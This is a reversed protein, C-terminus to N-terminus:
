LRITEDIRVKAAVALKFDFEAKEGPEGRLFRFTGYQKGEDKELLIEFKPSFPVFPVPNLIENDISIRQESKDFDISAIIEGANTVNINLASIDISSFKIESLIVTVSELFKFLDDSEGTRGFLDNDDDDSLGPLDKFDLKVYESAPDSSMIRIELPLLIVLDATVTSDLDEHQDQHLILEPIKIEYALEIDSPDKFIEALNIYGDGLSHEPMASEFPVDASPFVPRGVDNLPLDIIETNGTKLPVGNTSLSIVPPAASNGFGGVFIYGKVSPFEINDGLFDSLSNGINITYTDSLLNDTSTDITASYWDFVLEITMEGSVPKTLQVFIDLNGGTFDNKPEITIDSRTFELMASNDGPVGQIYDNIGFAPIKVRISEEFGFGNNMRLGFKSGTGGMTKVLSVMDLLPIRILPIDPDDPQPMGNGDLYVPFGSQPISLIAGPLTFSTRVDAGTMADSVYDQLNLKMEVIPYHVLYALVDPDVGDINSPTRYEYVRIGGEGTNMMKRIEDPSIMDTLNNEDTFPSGLFLYFEPNGKINISQPIEFKCSFVLALCVFCMVLKKM